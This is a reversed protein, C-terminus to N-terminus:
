SSVSGIQIVLKKDLKCSAQIEVAELRLRGALAASTVTIRYYNPNISVKSDEGYNDLVYQKLAAVQPPEQPAKKGLLDSIADM